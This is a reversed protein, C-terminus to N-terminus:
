SSKRGQIAKAAVLGVVALGALVILYPIWTLNGTFTTGTETQLARLGALALLVVGIAVLVSGGLGFALYRGIGKLPVITEQKAYEVLLDKLETITDTTAKARATPV